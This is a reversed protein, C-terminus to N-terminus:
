SRGLIRAIEDAAADAEAPTMGVLNLGLLFTRVQEREADSLPGSEPGGNLFAVRRAAEDEDSHDTVAAWTGNIHSGVTWLTEETQLYSYPGSM